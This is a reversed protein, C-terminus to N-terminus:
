NAKKPETKLYLTLCHFRRIWPMQCYARVKHEVTVIANKLSPLGIRQRKNNFWKTVKAENIGLENALRKRKQQDPYCNEKFEESLKLLQESNLLKKSRVVQRLQQSSNDSASANTVPATAWVGEKHENHTSAKNM